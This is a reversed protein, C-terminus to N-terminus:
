PKQDPTTGTPDPNQPKPVPKDAPVTADDEKLVDEMGADAPVDEGSEGGNILFERRALYANRMFAYKDYARELVGEADLLRARRDVLRFVRLGWAVGTNNM